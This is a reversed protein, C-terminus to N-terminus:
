SKRSAKVKNIIHLHGSAEGSRDAEADTRGDMGKLFPSLAESAHSTPKVQTIVGKGYRANM